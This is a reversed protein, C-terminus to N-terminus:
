RWMQERDRAAGHVDVLIAMAEGLTVGDVFAHKFPEVLNEGARASTELRIKAEDVKRSDRASKWRRVEETRAAEVAPDPQFITLEMDDQVSPDEGARPQERRRLEVQWANDDIQDRMFGSEIAAIVGGADTVRKDWMTASAVIEDTLEDVIKAGALPDVFEALGSEELLIEQTRISLLANEASPLGRAEDISSCFLSQVRGLVAGLASLTIRVANNNIEHPSMEGGLTYAIIKLGLPDPDRVAFEDRLMRAWLERAARFKAAEHWPQASASLFWRMRAAIAGPDLGRRVARTLYERALSLTFGIEMERSAGADRMHYGSVSIPVWTPLHRVCYEVADVTLEAAPEPRLVHTGRAIYEKLVDNQLRVSFATPSVGRREALGLWLAIMQPGISNATSSFQTVSALDIGDVIADVDDLSGLSVGVRGVEGLAAPHDADLGLQTPLDLALAVGTQGKAVLTRIRANTERPDSFGAYQGRIWPIESYPIDDVGTRYDRAADQVVPANTV